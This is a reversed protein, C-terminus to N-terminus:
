TNRYPVNGGVVDRGSCGIFMSFACVVAIFEMITTVRLIQKCNWKYRYLIIGGALMGGAAGTYHFLLNLFAM